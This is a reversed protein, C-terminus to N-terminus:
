LETHGSSPISAGADIGAVFGGTCTNIAAAGQQEGCIADIVDQSQLVALGSAGEGDCQSTCGMNFGMDFGFNCAEIEGDGACASSADGGSCHTHCDTDPNGTMDDVPVPTEATDSTAVDSAGSTAWKKVATIGARFGIACEVGTGSAACSPEVVEDSSFVEYEYAGGDPALGQADCAQSCAVFAGIDFGGVCWTAVEGSGAYQQCASASDASLDVGCVVDCDVGAAFVQSRESQHDTNVAVKVGATDDTSSVVGEVPSEIDTNVDATDATSSVIDDLTDLNADAVSIFQCVFQTQRYNTNVLRTIGKGCDICQTCVLSKTGSADNFSDDYELELFDSAM